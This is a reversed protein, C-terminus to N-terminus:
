MNEMYTSLEPIVLSMRGDPSVVGAQKQKFMVAFQNEDETPLIAVTPSAAFSLIEGEAMKRVGETIPLFDPCMAKYAQYAPDLISRDLNGTGMLWRTMGSADVIMNSNSLGRRYSNNNRTYYSLYKGQKGWRWGLYPVSFVGVDTFVEAPVTCEEARVNDEEDRVLRFSPINATRRGISSGVYHPINNYKFFSGSFKSFFWDSGYQSLLNSM